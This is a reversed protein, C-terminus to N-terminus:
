ADARRSAVPDTGHRRYSWGCGAACRAEDESAIVRGMCMPCPDLALVRVEGLERLREAHRRSVDVMADFLSEAPPKDWGIAELFEQERPSV